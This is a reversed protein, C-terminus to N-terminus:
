RSARLPRAPDGAVVQGAQVHDAVIAGAGIVAWRDVHCGSVVWANSGVFVGEGLKAHSEIIAGQGLFAHDGVVAGPGCLANLNLHSHRGIRTDRGVRVGAFVVSGVELEAGPSISADPHVLPAAAPGMRDTQSSVRHRIVTDGIAVVHEAGHVDLVEVGGLVPTNRDLLRGDEMRDSVFGLLRWTPARRNVAEVVDLVERGHGGAGVIVLPRM